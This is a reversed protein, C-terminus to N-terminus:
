HGCVGGSRPCGRPHQAPHPHGGPIDAVAVARGQQQVVGPTWSAEFRELIDVADSLETAVAQESTAAFATTLSARVNGERLWGLVQSQRATRSPRDADEDDEYPDWFANWLRGETTLHTGNARVFDALHRISADDPADLWHDLYPRLDDVACGLSTLVTDIDYGSPYRALTTRWLAEFFREVAQQEDPWWARWSALRFKRFVIELDPWDFGENVIIELIRPLFHKFDLENGWHHIADTAFDRLHDATLERLPREHLKREDDAVYCYTCYDTVSRLPYRGFVDYLDSIAADLVPEAM